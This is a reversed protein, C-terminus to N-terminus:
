NSPKLAAQALMHEAIARPNALYTGQRVAEGIARVDVPPREDFPDLDPEMSLDLGDDFAADFSGFSDLSDFVPGGDPNTDEDDLSYRRDVVDDDDNAADTSPVTARTAKPEKVRM